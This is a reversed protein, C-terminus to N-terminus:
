ISGNPKPTGNDNIQYAFRFNLVESDPNIDDVSTLLVVKPIWISAYQYRLGSDTISTRQALGWTRETARQIEMRTTHLQLSLAEADTQGSVSDYIVTGDTRTITLRITYPIGKYYFTEYPIFAADIASARDEVPSSTLPISEAIRIITNLGVSKIYAKILKPFNECKAYALNSPDVVFELADCYSGVTTLDCCKSNFKDEIENRDKSRDCPACCDQKRQRRKSKPTSNLAKLLDLIM